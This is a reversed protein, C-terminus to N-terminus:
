GTHRRKRYSERYSIYVGSGIVIAIGLWTLSHPFDGFWLYGVATTSVIEWYTFPALTSAPALEFAKILLFHGAAAIAGMAIMALWDALAPERWYWLMAVSMVLAGIVATYVLIVLPPASGALKRTAILYFAFITGAALALLSGTQFVGAGPRIIILVGVFGVLVASWRRVGVQEGLLWPSLATVVLPSIFVLALADALPMVSIAAFFLITSALLFTGRLVQAGPKRPLIGAAGYRWLVIPLLIVLHFFYRAWVVQFVHFDSSLHKAIGDMLPVLTMACVVLLIGSTTGEGPRTQTLEGSM